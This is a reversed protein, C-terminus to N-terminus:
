YVRAWAASLMRDPLMLCSPAQGGTTLVSIPFEPDCDIKSFLGVVVWVHFFLRVWRETIEGRTKSLTWCMAHCQVREM